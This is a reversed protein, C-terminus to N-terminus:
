SSIHSNRACFFRYYDMIKMGRAMSFRINAPRNPALESGDPRKYRGSFIVYKSLEKSVTTLSGARYLIRVNWTCLTMDMNRQKGLFDLDSTRECM